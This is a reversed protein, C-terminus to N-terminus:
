DIIKHNKGITNDLKAQRTFEAEQESAELIDEPKIENLLSLSSGYM